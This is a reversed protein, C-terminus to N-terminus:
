LITKRKNLSIVINKMFPCLSITYIYTCCHKFTYLHAHTHILSCAHTQTCAPTHLLINVYHSSTLTWTYTFTRSYLYTHTHLDNTHIHMLTNSDICSQILIQMNTCANSPAHLLTNTHIHLFTVKQNLYM